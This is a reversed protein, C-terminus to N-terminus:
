DISVDERKSYVFQLIGLRLGITKLFPSSLM